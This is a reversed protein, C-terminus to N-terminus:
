QNTEGKADCYITAPEDQRGDYSTKEQLVREMITAGLLAEIRGKSLLEEEMNASRSRIFYFTFITMIVIMVMILIGAIKISLKNTM